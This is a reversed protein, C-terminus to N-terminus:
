CHTDPAISGDFREYRMGRNEMLEIMRDVMWASYIAHESRLEGIMVRQEGLSESMQQVEEEIRQIRDEQNVPADHPVNLGIIPGEHDDIHAGGSAAGGQQRLPGEPVWCVTGLVSECIKLKILEKEHSQGRIVRGLQIQLTDTTDLDLVTERFRFTNFFELIVEIVWQGHIGPPQYMYVTKSLDGNLFANKVDLQYIPCNRSLALSLVMHITAPIVVPSFTDDCDVGFQQSRGNAVLHAKYKDDMKFQWKVRDTKFQWKVGDTKFKWKVGDTKFKWKVGDTKVHWKVDFLLFLPKVGLM